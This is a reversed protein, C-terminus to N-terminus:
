SDEEGPKVGKRRKMLWTVLVSHISNCGYIEKKKKKKKRWTLGPRSFLEPDDVAMGEGNKL